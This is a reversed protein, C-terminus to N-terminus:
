RNIMWGDDMQGNMMWRDTWGDEMQSGMVKWTRTKDQKQRKSCENVYAQDQGVGPRGTQRAKLRMGEGHREGKRRGVANSSEM